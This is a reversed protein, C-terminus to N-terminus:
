CYEDIYKYLFAYALPSITEVVKIFPPVILTNTIAFGRCCGSFIRPNYEIWASLTCAPSKGLSM